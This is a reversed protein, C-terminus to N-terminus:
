RAMLEGAVSSNVPESRMRRTTDWVVWLMKTLELPRSKRRTWSRGMSLDTAHIPDKPLRAQVSYYRECSLEDLDRDLQGKLGGRNNRCALIKQVDVILPLHCLSIAAKVRAGVLTEETRNWCSFTERYTLLVWFDQRLVRHQGRSELRDKCSLGEGAEVLGRHLSVELYQTSKVIRIRLEVNQDRVLIHGRDGVHRDFLCGAQIKRSM